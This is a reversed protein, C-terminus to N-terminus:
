ALSLRRAQESLVHLKIGPLDLQKSVFRPLRECNRDIRLYIATSLSQSPKSGSSLTNGILPAFFAIAPAHPRKPKGFYVCRDSRLINMVRQMSFPM